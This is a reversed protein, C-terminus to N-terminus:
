AVFQSTLNVALMSMQPLIYWVGFACFLFHSGDSVLWCFVSGFKELFASGGFSESAVV